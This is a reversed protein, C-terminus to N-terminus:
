SFLEMINEKRFPKQIERYGDTLVNSIEAATYRPYARVFVIEIRPDIQRLQRATELGDMGPMQMDILAHTYPASTNFANRAETIARRGENFLAIDFCPCDEEGTGKEDQELYHYCEDLETAAKPLDDMQFILRYLHLVMPDDDVALIKYSGSM